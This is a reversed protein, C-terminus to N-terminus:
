KYSKIYVNDFYKVYNILVQLKNYYRNLKDILNFVCKEVYNYSIQAFKLMNRNYKFIGYITADAYKYKASYRRIEAGKKINLAIVNLVDSLECILKLLENVILCPLITVEKKYLSSFGYQNNIYKIIDIKDTKLIQKACDKAVFEVITHCNLSRYCTIQSNIKKSLYKSINILYDKNDILVRQPFVEVPMAYIQKVSKDTKTPKLKKYMRKVSKEQKKSINRDTKCNKNKQNIVQYISNKM